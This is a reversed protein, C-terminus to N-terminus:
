ELASAQQETRASLDNSGAAIERCATQVNGAADRVASAASAMRGFAGQLSAAAATTVRVREAAGLTIGHTQEISTVLELLEQGRRATRGLSVAILVELSTQIVVYLAHALIRGFSPETLCYLGFGAAQLRDFVIHHVAFLVASLVIPRWDLYVLLLALTVFVGFHLESLGQSLHIHLAVFSTQITTLVVLSLITGGRTAYVLGAVALFLASLGWALGSEVFNTGLVVATIASVVIAAILVRDGLLQKSQVRIRKKEEISLM